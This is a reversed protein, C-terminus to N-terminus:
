VKEEEKRHSDPKPATVDQSTILGYGERQCWQRTKACHCGSQYDFKKLDTTTGRRNQRLSM